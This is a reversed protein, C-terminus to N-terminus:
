TRLRCPPRWAGPTAPQRGAAVMGLPNARRCLAGCALVKEAGIQLRGRGHLRHPQRDGRLLWRRTAGHLIEDRGLSYRTGAVELARPGSRRDDGYPRATLVESGNGPLHRDMWAAIKDRNAANVVMWFFPEGSGGALHYVLVDDLIGGQPNTVLAYRIQGVALNAVRRTVLGDLFTAAGPGDFRFRGMHSVDFLAARERTACHEAVISTYQVPMDWGAFEVM